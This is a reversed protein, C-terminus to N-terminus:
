DTALEHKVEMKQGNLYVRTESEMFEVLIVTQEKFTLLIGTKYPPQKVPEVYEMTFNPHGLPHPMEGKKRAIDPWWDVRYMHEPASFNDLMEKMEKWEGKLQGRSM